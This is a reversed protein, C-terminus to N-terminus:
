NKNGKRCKLIFCIGDWRENNIKFVATAFTATTSDLLFFYIFLM